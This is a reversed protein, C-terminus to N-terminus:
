RLAPMMSAEATAVPAGRRVLENCARYAPMEIWAHAGRAISIVACLYALMAIDATWAPAASLDVGHSRCAAALALGLLLVPVHVLYIAYSWAGLALLPRARLLASVPGCEAALIATAIAFVFPAAFTIPGDAAVTVLAVVAVLACVEMAIDNASQSPRGLRWASIAAGLMFGAVCRPFGAAGAMSQPTSAAIVALMVLAIGLFVRGADRRFVAVLLVFLLNTWLETAISWSTWNWSVSPVLGFPQLLTLHALASSADLTLDIGAAAFDARIADPGRMAVLAAMALFMAAHLPWLRGIRRLTFAVADARSAIRGAYAKALVFGSLVFFFDVFLYAGHFGILGSLGGHAGTLDVAHMAAILLAALGRMGDLARYRHPAAAM